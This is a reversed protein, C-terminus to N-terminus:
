DDQGHQQVGRDVLAGILDEPSEVGVWLTRLKVPVGLVRARGPPDIDITVIGKVGGNVLWRGRWGHVGIGGVLGRHPGVGTISAVPIEAQFAWGMRVRVRDGELVVSSVGPGAGFAWLVPRFVGYRLPFTQTPAM